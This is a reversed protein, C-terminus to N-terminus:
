LSLYAGLLQGAERGDRTEVGPAYRAMVEELLARAEERRSNHWLRALSCAVRVEWSLAGQARAM